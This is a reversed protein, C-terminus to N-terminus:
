RHDRLTTKKSAASAYWDEDGRVKKSNAFNVGMNM